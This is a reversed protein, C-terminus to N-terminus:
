IEGDSFRSRVRPPCGPPAIYERTPGGQFQLDDTVSLQGYRPDPRLNASYPTLAVRGVSMRRGKAMQQVRVIACRVATVAARTVPGRYLESKTLGPNDIDIPFQEWAWVPGADFNEIAELVTIGWHTRGPRIDSSDLDKLAKAADDISGDDGMLLWDLASPGADGPPGPHVILTLVKRYIDSPVRTTLFPCIVLDPGFLAVGELMMEDSIAYEISVDHGSSKLELYLRQSLSNHATCLFLIRMTISSTQRVSTTPSVSRNMRRLYSYARCSFSLSFFFAASFLYWRWPTVNDWNAITATGTRLSPVARACSHFLRIKDEWTGSSPDSPTPKAYHSQGALYPGPETDIAIKGDGPDANGGSPARVLLEQSTGM